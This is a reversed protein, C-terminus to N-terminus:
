GAASKAQGVVYRGRVWEPVHALLTGILSGIGIWSWPIAAFGLGVSFSAGAAVLYLPGTIFCHLRGCHRANYVCAVGMILFAPTWFMARLAPGAGMGALIVLAPLGWLLLGSRRGVLDNASCATKM